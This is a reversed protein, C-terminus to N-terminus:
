EFLIDKGAYESLVPAFGNLRTVIESREPLLDESYAFETAVSDFQNLLDEQMDYGAIQDYLWVLGSTKTYIDVTSLDPSMDLMEVDPLHVIISNNDQELSDETLIDLDLGYIYTVKMILLGERNGLLLSNEDIDTYIYTTIRDTALFFLSESKLVQLVSTTSRSFGFINSLDLINLTLLFIALIVLLLLVVASKRLIKM